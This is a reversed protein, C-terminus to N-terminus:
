VSECEINNAEELRVWFRVKGSLFGRKGTGKLGPMPSSEVLFTISDFDDKGKRIYIRDMVLVTGAPLKMEFAVKDKRITDNGTAKYHGFQEEIGVVVFKADLDIGTQNFAPTKAKELILDGPGVKASWTMTGPLGTHVTDYEIRDIGIRAALTSNRHEHLLTFHWDELLKLKSGLPPIFLKM